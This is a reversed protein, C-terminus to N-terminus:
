NGIEMKRGTFDFIDIRYDDFEGSMSKFDSLASPAAVVYPDTSNQGHIVVIQRYYGQTAAVRLVVAETIDGGADDSPMRNPGLDFQPRTDISIESPARDTAIASQWRIAMENFQDFLGLILVRGEFDVNDLVYTQMAEIRDGHRDEFAYTLMPQLEGARQFVSLGLFAFMVILSVSWMMQSRGAEVSMILLKALGIAALFWIFPAAFAFHRSQNNLSITLIFLSFFAVWSATRVAFRNWEKIAGWCALLATSLGIIPHLQFDNLWAFSYYFLNEASFLQTYQPQDFAFRLAGQLGAVTFWFGLGIALVVLVAGAEILQSRKRTCPKPGTLIAAEIALIAIVGFSYKTLTIVFLVLVYSCVRIWRRSSPHDLHWSLWLLLTIWLCGILELMCLVANQILVPSTSVFYVTAATAVYATGNGVGAIWSITRFTLAAVVIILVAFTVVTSIRTTALSPGALLYSPLVTLSHLPPYFSQQIIAKSFHVIDRRQAAVYLELVPTAHAAEDTDFLTTENFVRQALMSVIAFTLLMSLVLFIIGLSRFQGQGSVGLSRNSDEVKM